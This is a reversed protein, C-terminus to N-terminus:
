SPCRCFCEIEVLLDQRCIDALTFVMAVDPYRAKLWEETRTKHEPHRLYVKLTTLKRNFPNATQLLHEINSATVELQRELDSKAVTKHGIISATGSIFLFPTERLKLATARTFSPSSIGYQRPYDYANVQKDNKLHIPEAKSAFVYIVAGETHHGLASASPFAQPEISLKEFARLRGTCFRKYIESDGDGKNINPLYNWFRFPLPFSHEYLVDFIAMYADCINTELDECEQQSLWHSVCIVDDTKSWYTSGSRGRVVSDETTWVENLNQGTLDAIGSHIAGLDSPCCQDTLPMVALVDQRALLEDTPTNSFIQTLM